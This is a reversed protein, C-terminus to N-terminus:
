RTKSMEEDYVKKFKQYESETMQKQMAKLIDDKALEVATYFKYSPNKATPREGKQCIIRSDNLREAVVIRVLDDMKGRTDAREGVQSTNTYLETTRTLLATISTALEARAAVASATMASAETGGVGPMTARFYENDTRFELGGCPVEYLASKSSGCSTMLVLGIIMSFLFYYKKM